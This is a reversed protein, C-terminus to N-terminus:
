SNSTDGKGTSMDENSVSGHDLVAELNAQVFLKWYSGGDTPHLSDTM